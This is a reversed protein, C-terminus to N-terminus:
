RGSTGADSETEETETRKETEALAKLRCEECVSMGGNLGVMPQACCSCKLLTTGVEVRQNQPSSRKILMEDGGHSRHLM